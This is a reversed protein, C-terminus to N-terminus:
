VIGNISILALFAVLISDGRSWGGLVNVAWYGDIHHMM